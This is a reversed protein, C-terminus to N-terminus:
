ESATHGQALKKVKQAETEEGTFPFTILLIWTLTITHSYLSTIYGHLTSLVAGSM